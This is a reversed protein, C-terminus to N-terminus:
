AASIPGPGGPEEAARRTDIVVDLLSGEELVDAFLRFQGATRALEGTLRAPGLATEEDALEVLARDAGVADAVHRLARARDTSTLEELSESASAGDSLVAELQGASTEAGLRHTVAGTRPDVSTIDTAM